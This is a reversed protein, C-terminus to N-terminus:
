QAQGAKRGPEAAIRVPHPDAEEARRRRRARATEAGAGSRRSSRDPAPPRGRQPGRAHRGRALDEAACAALGALLPLRTHGAGGGGGRLAGGVGGADAEPRALLVVQSRDPVRWAGARRAAASRRVRAARGARSARGQRARAQARGSRAARWVRRSVSRAAGRVFRAGTRRALARRPGFPAGDEGDARRSRLSTWRGSSPPSTTALSRWKRERWRDM